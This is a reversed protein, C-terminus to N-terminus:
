RFSGSHLGVSTVVHLFPIVLATPKEKGGKTHLMLSLIGVNELFRSQFREKLASIKRTWRQISDKAVLLYTPVVGITSPLRSMYCHAETDQLVIYCCPTNM